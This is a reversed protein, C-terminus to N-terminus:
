SALTTPPCVHEQFNAALVDLCSRQEDSVKWRASDPNRPDGLSELCLASDRAELTCVARMTEVLKANPMEFYHAWLWDHGGQPSSDCSLWRTCPGM